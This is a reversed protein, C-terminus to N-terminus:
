ADINSQFDRETCHSNPTLAGDGAKVLKGVVLGLALGLVAWCIMGLVIWGLLNTWM